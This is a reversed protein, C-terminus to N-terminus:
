ALDAGKGDTVRGLTVGAYRALSALLASAGPDIAGATRWYAGMAMSPGMLGIPYMAMSRVFTPRYADVPVRPDEYIDPIHIPHAEIIALGSICAEIPFSQGSWLPELADEAIYAVQNGDRRIVTIGDAQAITRASERLIAVIEDISGAHSLRAMAETLLRRQEFSDPQGM